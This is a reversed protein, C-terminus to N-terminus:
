DMGGKWLRLKLKFSQADKPVEFIQTLEKKIGPNINQLFDQSEQPLWYDFEINELNSYERNQDDILVIEGISQVEKGINEIEFKVELFKGTTTKDQIKQLEEKDKPPYLMESTKLVDGRDKIELIQCKINGKQSEKGLVCEIQSQSLKDMLAFIGFLLLFFIGVGVFGGVIGQWFSKSIKPTKEETMYPNRV